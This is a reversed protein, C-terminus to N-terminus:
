LKENLNFKKFNFMFFVLLTFFQIWSICLLVGAMISKNITLSNETSKNLYSLIWFVSSFFVGILMYNYTYNVAYYNGLILLMSFILVIPLNHINLKIKFVKAMSYVTLFLITNSIIQIFLM